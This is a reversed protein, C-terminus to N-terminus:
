ALRIGFVKWEVQVADRGVEDLVSVLWLGIVVRGEIRVLVLADLVVVNCVIRQRRGASQASGLAVVLAHAVVLLTDLVTGDRERVVGIQIVLQLADEVVVLLPDIVLVLSFLKQLPHSVM